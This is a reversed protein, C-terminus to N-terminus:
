VSTKFHEIVPFVFPNLYIRIRLPCPRISLYFLCREPAAHIQTVSVLSEYIGHHYRLLYFEKIIKYFKAKLLDLHSKGCGALYFIVEYTLNDLSLEKGIIYLKLHQRLAPFLLYLSIEFSHLSRLLEDHM